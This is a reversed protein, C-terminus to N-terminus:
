SQAVQLFAKMGGPHFRRVDFGATRLVGGNWVWHNWFAKTPILEYFETDPVAQLDYYAPEHEPRELTGLVVDEKQWFDGIATGNEIRMEFHKTDLM